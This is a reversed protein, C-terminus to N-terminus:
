LALFIIAPIVLALVSLLLAGGHSRKAEPADYLMALPRTEDYMADFSTPM